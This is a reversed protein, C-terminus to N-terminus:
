VMEAKGSKVARFIAEIVKMDRLGERGDANSECKNVICRCMDELQEKQHNVIPLELPGKNTRGAIPGYGFAPKLELWGNEAGIYLRELQTAYSTSSNSIAGSPFQMQWFITEDVEKFKVLDTKFEQATVSVPEEGTSYRAGQIAYIGVDMMAGGGSLAHKLRWQTPDGIKFGMETQVVKIKGTDPLTHFKMAAQNFPESHLRYGVFLRVNAQKCADIMQQCEKVSVGMPKETIVHKGAKAARIVYEAHMANPLVVYVVDIDKNDIIRDFTKYDYINKDPINEERKWKEAKAPTGTVIGALYCNSAAKLAPLLQNTAYSGLGVLAVGIKKDDKFNPSASTTMAPASLLAGAASIKALFERRSFM